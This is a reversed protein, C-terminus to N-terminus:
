RKLFKDLLFLWPFLSLMALVFLLADVAIKM